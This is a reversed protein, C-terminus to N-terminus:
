KDPVWTYKARDLIWNQFRRDLDRWGGPWNNEVYSRFAKSRTPINNDFQRCYALAKLLFQRHHNWLHDLLMSGIHYGVGIDPLLRGWDEYSECALYKDLSPFDGSKIGIELFKPDAHFYFNSPNATRKRFSDALWNAIGEDFCIPFDGYSAFAIAHIMEHTVIDTVHTSGDNNGVM